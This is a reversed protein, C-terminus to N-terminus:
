PDYDIDAGRCATWISLKGFCFHSSCVDLERQTRELIEFFLIGNFKKVIKLSVNYVFSLM